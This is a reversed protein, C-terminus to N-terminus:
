FNKILILNSHIDKFKGNEPFDLNNNHMLKKMKALNKKENQNNILRLIKNENLEIIREKFKNLNNFFKNLCVISFLVIMISYSIFIIYNLDKIEKYFNNYLDYVLNDLNVLYSVIYTGDTTFPRDSIKLDLYFYSDPTINDDFIIDPKKFTKKKLNINCKVNSQSSRKKFFDLNFSNYFITENFKKYFDYNDWQEKQINPNNNVYSNDFVEISEKIKKELYNGCFFPLCRCDLNGQLYDRADYFSETGICSNFQCLDRFCEQEPKDYGFDTLNYNYNECTNEGGSKIERFQKAIFAILNFVRADQLFNSNSIKSNNGYAFIDNTNVISHDDDYYEKFYKTVNYGYIYLNELFPPITLVMRRANIINYTLSPDLRDNNPFTNSENEILNNNPYYISFHNFIDDYKNYDVLNDYFNFVFSLVGTTTRSRTFKQMSLYSFFNSRKQDDELRQFRNLIKRNNLDKSTFNKEAVFYYNLSNSTDYNGSLDKECSSHPDIVEDMFNFNEQSSSYKPFMFYDAKTNRRCEFKQLSNPNREFSSSIFNITELRLRHESVSDIINPVLVFLIPFLMDNNYGKSIARIEESSIRPDFKSFQNEAFSGKISYSFRNENNNSNAFDSDNYLLQLNNLSEWNYVFSTQPNPDYFTLNVRNLERSYINIFNMGKTLHTMNSDFVMSHINQYSDAINKFYEKGVASLYTMDAIEMNLNDLKSLKMIIIFLLYIIYMMFFFFLIQKQLPLNFLEVLINYFRKSGHSSPHDENKLLKQKEREELNENLGDNM